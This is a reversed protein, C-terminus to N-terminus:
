GPRKDGQGGKGNEKETARLIDDAQLAGPSGSPLLKKAKAAHHRAEPKKGRIYAEEALALASMGMNGQRGYGIALNRWISVSRPEKQLAARLNEIAPDLYVPNNRELQVRALQLRLLPASPVLRVAAQYPALAEDGRGNEFLIQGKLELFFPDHPHEAILSEIIPLAKDLDPRRYYAIARAYRAAISQDTEKYLRLTRSPPDIFAKLKARMRAHMDLYREPYPKDSFQSRAVHDQLARIRDRTLPHTRLYPAQHRTSLLEQDALGELFALLGRASQGTADLYRMAASDAAGEQTRSYHLFTSQGLGQGGAIVAAGVDGRKSAVAAAAGVVTALIQQASSKALADRTQSLHGGAIHGTEHAIVGILAGPEESHMLLGTYLFLKQGGAVFANLRPDKVIYVQIASPDLGAVQFVPTAFTRITNEIESDRIFTRKKAASVTGSFLIAAATFFLVAAILPSIRKNM